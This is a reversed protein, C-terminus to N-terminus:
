TRGEGSHIPCSQETVHGESTGEADGQGLGREESCQELVLHRPYVSSPPKTSAQGWDPPPALSGVEPLTRVIGQRLFTGILHFLCDRKKGSSETHHPSLDPLSHPQNTCSSIMRLWGQSRFRRHHVCVWSGWVEGGMGGPPVTVLMAQGPRCLGRSGGRWPSCLTEPARHMRQCSVVAGVGGCGVWQETEKQVFHPLWIM